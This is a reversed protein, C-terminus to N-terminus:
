PDPYWSATRDKRHRKGERGGGAQGGIQPTFRWLGRDGCRVPSSSPSCLGPCLGEAAEWALRRHVHDGIRRPGKSCASNLSPFLLPPRPLRSSSLDGCPLSAWSLVKIEREATRDGPLM